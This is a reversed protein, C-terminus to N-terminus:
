NVCVSSLVFTAQWVLAMEHLNEHYGFLGFRKSTCWTAWLVCVSCGLESWVCCKACVTSQETPVYGKRSLELPLRFPGIRKSCCWVTWVVCVSRGIESWVCGASHASRATNHQTLRYGKHSVNAHYGSFPSIAKLRVNHRGCVAMNWNVSISCQMSVTSNEVTTYHITGNDFRPPLLSCEFSM